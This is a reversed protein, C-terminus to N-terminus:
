PFLATLLKDSIVEDDTVFLCPSFPCKYILENGHERYRYRGTTPVCLVNSLHVNNHNNCYQLM